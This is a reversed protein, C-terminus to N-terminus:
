ELLPSHMKVSQLIVWVRASYCTCHAVLILYSLHVIVQKIQEIIEM